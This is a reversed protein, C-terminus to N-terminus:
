GPEASCENGQERQVVGGGTSMRCARAVETQGMEGSRSPALPGLYGRGRGGGPRARLVAPCESPEGTQGWGEPMATRHKRVDPTKLSYKTQNGPQKLSSPFDSGQSEMKAVAPDVASPKKGLFM